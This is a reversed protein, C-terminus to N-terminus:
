WEEISGMSTFQAPLVTDLYARDGMPGLVWGSTVLDFPAQTANKAAAAHLLDTVADQVIPSSIPVADWQWSEPMWFWFEDIPYAAMVREFTGEWYEQATHSANKKSDLLPIEAGVGIKIGFHDRGFTFSANLMAAVGNLLAASEVPGQPLGMSNNKPNVVSMQVESTFDDAPFAAAAGFKYDATRMTRGGLGKSWVGPSIERGTWGYSSAYSTPYAGGGATSHVAGTKPDFQSRLGLWLHPEPSGANSCVPGVTTSGPAYPETWGMSYTHIALKNMKMKAMQEFTLKYEQENWLDPGMVFDHFPLLGRDDFSPSIVEAEASGMKMQMAQSRAAAEALMERPRAEWMERLRTPVVDRDIRFRVGLHRELLTYAAYLTAVSDAGMCLLLPSRLARGPVAHILHQGGVDSTNAVTQLRQAASVASGRVSSHQLVFPGSSESDSAAQLVDDATGVIVGSAGTATVAAAHSAATTPDSLDVLLLRSGTLEHVFRRLEKAARRQQVDAGLHAVFMPPEDLVKSNEDTKLPTLKSDSISDRYQLHQHVWIKYDEYNKKAAAAFPDSSPLTPSLCSFWEWAILVAKEAGGLVAAEAAMQQQIRDLPAPQRKCPPRGAAEACGTPFTAFLEINAWTARGHRVAAAQVAALLSTANSISNGLAGVSDQPAIMSLDPAHEFVTELTRGWQQPALWANGAGLSGGWRGLNAVGYPSIFVLRHPGGSAKVSAAIPQLYGAAFEAAHQEFALQNSEELETYIGLLEAGSTGYLGLLHRAIRQQTAALHGRRTADTYRCSDLASGASCSNQDTGALWLLQATQSPPQRPPPQPLASPSHPSNPRVDV